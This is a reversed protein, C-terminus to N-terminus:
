KTWIVTACAEDPRPSLAGGGGMRTGNYQAPIESTRYVEIGSVMDPSLLLDVGQRLSRGRDAPIPTLVGDIYLNSACIDRGTLARIDSLLTLRELREGTLFASSPAGSVTRREYFGNLDLKRVTDAPGRRIAVQGHATSVVQPLQQGMKYLIKTIPTTDADSLVILFTLPLYGLKRIRLFTGGTDLFALQVTGTSTTLASWGGLVDLVQAGVIPAGTEEDFVGLLRGHWIPRLVIPPPPAPKVQAGATRAPALLAVCLLAAFAIRRRSSTM